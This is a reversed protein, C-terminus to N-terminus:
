VLKKRFELTCNATSGNACIFQAAGIAGAHEISWPTSLSAPIPTGVNATPATGDARYRVVANATEVFVLMQTAWTPVAINATALSQATTNAVFTAHTSITM